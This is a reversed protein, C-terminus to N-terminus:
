MLCARKQSGDEELPAKPEPEKLLCSRSLLCEETAADSTVEMRQSEGTSPFSSRSEGSGSFLLKPEGDERVRSEGPVSRGAKGRFTEVSACGLVVVGTLGLPSLSVARGSVARKLGAVDGGLASYGAVVRELGDVLGM